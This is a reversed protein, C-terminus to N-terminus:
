KHVHKKVIDVFDRVTTLKFSRTSSELEPAWQKMDPDGRRSLHRYDSKDFSINYEKQLSLSIEIIDFESGKHKEGMIIDDIGVESPKKYLNKAVLRIVESEIKDAEAYTMVPRFLIVCVLLLFIFLSKSTFIKTVLSM